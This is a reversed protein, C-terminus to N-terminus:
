WVALRAALEEHSPVDSERPLAPRSMFDMHEGRSAGERPYSVAWLKLVRIIFDEDEPSPGRCSRERMCPLPAGGPRGPEPTHPCRIIWGGFDERPRRRLFRFPGWVFVDPMLVRAVAEPRRARKSAPAEQPVAAGAALPSVGGAPGTSSSSAAAPLAPTLEAAPRKQAHHGPARRVFASLPRRTAQEKLRRQKSQVAKTLDFYEEKDDVNDLVEEALDDM